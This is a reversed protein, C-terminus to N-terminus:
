GWSQREGSAFCVFLVAGVAQFIMTPYFLSWEWFHTKDYVLGAISVGVLGPVAGVANSIGLLISAYRPSLDQHNCYLGARSWTGLAFACSLLTVVAGAVGNSATGVTTTLACIVGLALCPGLFAVCQAVKRVRTISHGRAVLGDAVPGVFPTMLCMALYPILTLWGAGRVDLGLADEFYSPLWALLTFYGYNYCFHAAITAFFPVCTAIQKWPVEKSMKNPLDAAECLQEQKGLEDTRTLIWWSCWIFGLLGFMYFVSTWGFYRILLPALLLGIVSGADMGGFVLSVARAREKQPVREAMLGVASAPALGEGLGVLVRTLCLAWLSSYAALPAIMTGFSWIAVGAWLVKEGGVRNAIWGAPIQTLAYGLFFASSVIGRQTPSWALEEAMPIVAVSMNVKDMNCLVFAVSM